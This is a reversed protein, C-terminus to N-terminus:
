CLISELYKSCGLGYVFMYLNPLIEKDPVQEVACCFQRGYSACGRKDLAAATATGAMTGTPTFLHKIYDQGVVPILIESNTHNHGVERYAM